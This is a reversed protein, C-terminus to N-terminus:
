LLQNEMKKLVRQIESVIEQTNNSHHIVGWSWVYDFSQNKFPLNEADALIFKGNKINMIKFRKKSFKISYNTIDIGTYTKCNKAILSAHSGLGCGIELVKKNKIFKYDIISNFYKENPYKPHAFEQAMNFFLHDIEKIKKLSILKINKKKEDWNYNMPNDNWWKKNKEQKHNSKLKQSSKLFLSNKIM